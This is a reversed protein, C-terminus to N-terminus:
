EKEIELEAGKPLSITINQKDQHESYGRQRGRTKLFFITATTNDNNIQRMLSSEVFDIAVERVAETAKKFDPDDQLWQYYASRPIKALECATTVVGLTENLALIMEKKSHKNQKKASM